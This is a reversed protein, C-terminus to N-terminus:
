KRGGIVKYGSAELYEYYEVCQGCPHEWYGNQDLKGSGATVRGCIGTSIMCKPNTCAKPIGLLDGVKEIATKDESVMTGATIRMNTNASLTM